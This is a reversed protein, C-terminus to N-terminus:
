FLRNRLRIAKSLTHIDSYEINGGLPIGQAITTITIDPFKERVKSSIFSTTIEGESDPDLAIFIEKINLKQIRNLLQQIKLDGPGIGEMPSIVGGLVHYLGNFEGTKEIPIADNPKEVVCLIETDRESSSCISCPDKESILGCESCVVLSSKVIKLIEVLKDIYNSKSSVMFFSIKEATKPGIGPIESLVESLNKLVRPFIEM